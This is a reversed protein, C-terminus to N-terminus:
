RSERAYGASRPWPGPCAALWGPHHLGARTAPLSVSPVFERGRAPHPSPLPAHQVIGEGGAVPPPASDRRTEDGWSTRSASKGSHPSAKATTRPRISSRSCSPKWLGPLGRLEAGVGHPVAEEGHRVRLDPRTALDAALAEARAMLQDDPVVENVLGLHCRRRASRRLARHVGAGQGEGHRHSADPVLDRRWGTGPRHPPLDALLTRDGVRRDPRLGARHSWGIGVTPGRVAAIMPKEIAHMMRLFTHSGGQDTRARRAARRAAHRGVDAGTCFARGEGTVLIARVDDDFRLREFHERLQVRMERTLANLKEPRNLVVKAVAGEIILDVSM